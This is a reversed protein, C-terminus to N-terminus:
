NPSIEIHERIWQKAKRKFGNLHRTTKIVSPMSNWLKSAKYCFASRALSLNNEVRIDMNRISRTIRTEEDIINDNPFLRHYLYEPQKTQCTKYVQLVSHYAALQQVSLQRGRSLLTAVATDRHLGTRLRLVKNQLIQLKNCDDKTITPSSRREMDLVGPLKWVGGWLSIGYVLKSNFLANSVM